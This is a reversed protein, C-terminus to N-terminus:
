PSVQSYSAFAAPDLVSSDGRLAFRWVIEDEDFEFHESRDARLGGAMRCAFRNWAGVVIAHDVKANATGAAVLNPFGADAMLPLGLVRGPYDAQPNMDFIPTGDDNTIQRIKGCNFWNTLMAMSPDSMYSDAILHTLDVMDSYSLEYTGATADVRIQGGAAGSPFSQGATDAVTGLGFPQTTNASQPGSRVGAFNAGGGVGNVLRWGLELGMGIGADDVLENEIDGPELDMILEYTLATLFGFKHATLQVTKYEPRLESFAAGQAVSPPHVGFEADTGAAAAAVSNNGAPTATVRLRRRIKLPNGHPTNYSRCIGAIRSMNFMQQVIPLVIEPIGGSIDTGTTQVPNTVYNQVIENFDMDLTKVENAYHIQDVSRKNGQYVPSDSLEVNRRMRDYDVRSKFTPFVLEGFKSKETGFETIAKIAEGLTLQKEITGDPRKIGRDAKMRAEELSLRAEEDRYFGAAIQDLRQMKEELNAYTIFEDGALFEEKREKSEKLLKLQETRIYQREDTVQELTWEGPEKLKTDIVGTDPIEPKM